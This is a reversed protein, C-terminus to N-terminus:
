GRRRSAVRLEAARLSHEMREPLMSRALMFREDCEDIFLAELYSVQLAEYLANDARGFLDSAVILHRRWAEMDGRRIAARSALRFVGVELHIYGFDSEDVQEAVEPLRLALQPMLDAIGFAWQKHQVAVMRRLSCFTHFDFSPKQAVRLPMAPSTESPIAVSTDM